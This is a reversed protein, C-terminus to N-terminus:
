CTLMSSNKNSPAHPNFVRMKFHGRLTQVGFINAAVDLLFGENNM